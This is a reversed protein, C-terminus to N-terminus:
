LCFPHCPPPFYDSGCSSFSYVGSSGAAGRGPKDLSGARRGPRDLRDLRGAGRGPRDPRDLRGPRDEPRGPRGTFFTDLFFFTACVSYRRKWKHSPCIFSWSKKGGFFFRFPSGVRYIASVSTRVRHSAHLRFLHDANRCLAMGALTEAEYIHVPDFPRGARDSSDPDYLEREVCHHGFFFAPHVDRDYPRDINGQSRIGPLVWQFQCSSSLPFFRHFHHSKKSRIRYLCFCCVPRVSPRYQLVSCHPCAPYLCRSHSVLTHAM